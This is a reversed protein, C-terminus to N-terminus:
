EESLVEFFVTGVRDIHYPSLRLVFKRAEVCIVGNIPYQRTRNSMRYTFVLNGKKFGTIWWIGDTYNFFAMRIENWKLHASESVSFPIKGNYSPSFCVHDADAFYDSPRYEGEDKLAMFIDNDVAYDRPLSIMHRDLLFWATGCLLFIVIIKGVHRSIFAQRAADQTQKSTM